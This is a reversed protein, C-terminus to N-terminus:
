VQEVCSLMLFVFVLIFIDEESCIGIEREKDGRKGERERRTHAADSFAMEGM